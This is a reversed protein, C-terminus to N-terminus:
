GQQAKVESSFDAALKKLTTSVRSAVGPAGKAKALEFRAISRDVIDVAVAMAKIHSPMRRGTEARNAKWRAVRRSIREYGGAQYGLRKILRNKLEGADAAPNTKLVQEILAPTVIEDVSQRRTRSPERKWSKAGIEEDKADNM